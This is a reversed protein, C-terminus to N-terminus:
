EVFGGAAGGAARERQMRFRWYPTTCLLLRGTGEYVRARKQGSMWYSVLSRAPRRIRLSIGNTRAVVFPGDAVLRDNKLEVEEIPGEVSLVVQGAGKLATKYWVIGQGALLSTLVPERHISLKVEGGSAWFCRTDLIWREGTRVELLHFGGLSSDLYVAGTGSYRPRMLSEDSFLSVWWAKLSPLPVDMTIAGKMHNLAGRETRVDDHDLGVKVWRMGESHEIEFRAM